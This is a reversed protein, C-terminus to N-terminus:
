YSMSINTILISLQLQLIKYDLNVVAVILIVADDDQINDNDDDVSIIVLMAFNSLNHHKKDNIWRMCGCTMYIEVDLIVGEM